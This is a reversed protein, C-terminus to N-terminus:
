ETNYYQDSCPDSRTPWDNGPKDCPLPQCSKFTEGLRRFYLCPVARDNLLNINVSLDPAGPDPLIKSM